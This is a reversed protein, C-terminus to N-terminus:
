LMEEVAEGGGMTLAARLRLGFATRDPAAAWARLVDRMLDRWAWQEADTILDRVIEGTSRYLWIESSRGCLTYEIGAARLEVLMERMVGNSRMFGARELKLRFDTMAGDCAGCVYGDHATLWVGNSDQVVGHRESARRLQAKSM